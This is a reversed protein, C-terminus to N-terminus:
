QSWGLDKLDASIDAVEENYFDESLQGAILKSRLGKRQRLLNEVEAETQSDCPGPLLADPQDLYGLEAKLDAIAQQCTREGILGSESLLLRLRKRQRQLEAAPEADDKPIAVESRGIVEGPVVVETSSDGFGPVISQVLPLPSGTVLVPTLGPDSDGPRVARAKLLDAVKAHLGDWKDEIKEKMEANPFTGYVTVQVFTRDVASGASDEAEAGNLSLVFNIPFVGEYWRGTIDWKRKITKTRFDPSSHDEVVTKVYYGDASIANTLEAVTRYDARVGDFPETKPRFEDESTVKNDDPVARREQYRLSSLSIDFRVSIETRPQTDFHRGSGGGPLYFDIGTVGSLTRDFTARLSGSLRPQDLIPKEFEMRLTMSRPVATSDSSRRQEDADLRLQRWRIVRPQGPAPAASAVGPPSAYLLNGWQHPVLFEILEFRNLEARSEDVEPMNWHLDIMLVRKDSTPGVSPVIWLPIDQPARASQLQYRACLEWEGQPRGRKAAFLDHGDVDGRFALGLGDTALIVDQGAVFTLGVKGCLMAFGASFKVPYDPPLQHRKRYRNMTQQWRTQAHTMGIVIEGEVSQKTSIYGVDTLQIEGTLREVISATNVDPFVPLPPLDDAPNQRGRVRAIRTVEGLLGETHDHDECHHVAEWVHLLKLGAFERSAPKSVPGVPEEDGSAGPLRTAPEQVAVSGHQACMPRSCHHCITRIETSGCQYCRTEPARDIVKLPM